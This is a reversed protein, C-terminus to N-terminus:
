GLCGQVLQRGFYEPGVISLLEEWVRRCNERDRFQFFANARGAYPEVMTMERGSTEVIWQVLEDRNKIVPGFGREVFDFDPIYRHYTRDNLMRDADFQYYAIPKGLYAFDFSISSYDTVLLGGSTKLREFDTTERGLAEEILANTAGPWRRFQCLGGM